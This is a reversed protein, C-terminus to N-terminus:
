AGTIFERNKHGEIEKGLQVNTYEVSTV